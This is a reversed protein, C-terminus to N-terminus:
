IAEAWKRNSGRSFKLGFNKAITISPRKKVGDEDLTVGLKVEIQDHHDRITMIAERTHYKYGLRVYGDNDGRYYMILHIFLFLWYLLFLYYLYVIQRM